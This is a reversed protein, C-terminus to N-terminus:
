GGGGGCSAKRTGQHIYVESWLFGTAVGELASCPLVILWMVVLGYAVLRWGGRATM